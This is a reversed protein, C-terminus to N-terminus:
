LKSYVQDLQIFPWLCKLKDYIGKYISRSTTYKLQKNIAINKLTVTHRIIYNLSVAFKCSSTAETDCTSSSSSCVMMGVWKRYIKCSVMAETLPM